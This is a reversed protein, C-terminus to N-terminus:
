LRVESVSFNQLNRFAGRGRRGNKRPQVPAPLLRLRHVIAGRKRGQQLPMFGAGQRFLQDPLAPLEGCLGPPRGKEPRGSKQAKKKGSRIKGTAANVQGEGTTPQRIRYAERLANNSLPVQFKDM